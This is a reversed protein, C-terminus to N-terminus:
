GPHPRPDSPCGLRYTWPNNNVINSFPGYLWLRAITSDQASAGAQGSRWSVHGAPALPAPGTASLTAGGPRTARDRAGPPPRSITSFFVCFKPRVRGEPNTTGLRM